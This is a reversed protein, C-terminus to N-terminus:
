TEHGADHQATGPAAGGSAHAAPCVQVEVKFLKLIPTSM